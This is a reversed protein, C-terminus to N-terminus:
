PSATVRSEPSDDTATTVPPVDDDARGSPTLLSTRKRLAALVVSPQKRESSKSREPVAVPDVPRVADAPDPTGSPQLGPSQGVFRASATDNVPTRHPETVTATAAVPAKSARKKTRDLRHVGRRRATRRSGAPQTGYHYSGYYYYSEAGKTPVRNVVVGLTRAGVTDLLELARALRERHVVGAGAVVIAGDVLTSVVAADTVPLLPPADILVYDFRASLDDLLHKMAASGLLESPNPPIPGAGLVTVGTSGFQQLVDELEVEGILVNTLGVGSELGMYSLLRPRRLDGEVICVSAKGAAITTALNAATTTKGEEPVSSTVVISKPKNTVDVFQLNTRLVRFAEARTSKSEGHVLLPTTTATPDYHVEGIITADTVEHVDRASRVSTDLRDRLLALGFGLLLGLVLGLGLDRAPRPRVQEGIGQASEVVTVKVPVQGGDVTELDGVTKTFQEAIANAVESARQPDRDTASVAIISTDAPVTARVSNALDGATVPLQLQTVVPDLVKPTTLIDAYSTVQAQSFTSGAALEATSSATSTSVFLRATAQYTKPTLLVVALAAALALGTVATIIRWRKRVVRLYDQLEM